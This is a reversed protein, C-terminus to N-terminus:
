SYRRGKAPLLRSINTFANVKDDVDSACYVPEWKELNLQLGLDMLNSHKTLRVRRSTPKIKQIMKPILLLSQHDSRGIPPLHQVDNYLDPMNTLIQELINRGRTPARVAKKLNFRRCLLNLRMKNFDGAVIIGASPRDHLVSDLGKTIYEYMEREDEATQGPPFYVGTVVISSYPRPIRAPKLLLWLAEKGDVELETLRITPIHNNVYALIGGGPTPRDRRYTNFNHGIAVAADPISSNLWSETIIIVSPNNVAVIGCLEIVKNTIHCVNSLFISPTFCEVPKGCTKIRVCNKPNHSRLNSLKNPARCPSPANFLVM